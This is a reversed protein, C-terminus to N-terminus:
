IKVDFMIQNLQFDEGRAPCFIEAPRIQGAPRVKGVGTM